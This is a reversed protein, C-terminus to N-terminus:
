KLPCVGFLDFVQHWAGHWRSEVRILASSRPHLFELSYAKLYLGPLELNERFFRNHIGDGYVTDGVLPHSLHAFHRRIQHTRGTLPNVRVLSYRATPFKGVPTPIEMRGIKEYSSLADAEGIPHDIKGIEDVWGRTVCIYTKQVRRERFAGSLISAADSSLGFVLVGSTARDLRHIPYLYRGLQDRLIALCNTNRPIRHSPDEPPHVYFGAPKDIAVLDDDQYLIRFV